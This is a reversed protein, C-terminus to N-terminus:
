HSSHSAKMSAVLHIFWKPALGLFALSFLFFWIGALSFITISFWFSVPSRDRYTISGKGPLEGRSIAQWIKFFILGSLVLFVIGFLWVGPPLTNPTQM